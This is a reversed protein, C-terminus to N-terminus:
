FHLCQLVDKSSNFLAANSICKIKKKYMTNEICHISKLILIKTHRKLAKYREVSLHVCKVQIQALEFGYNEIIFKHYLGNEIQLLILYKFKM